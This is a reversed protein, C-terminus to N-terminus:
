VCHVILVYFNIGNSALLYFAFTDFPLQQVGRRRGASFMGSSVVQSSFHALFVQALDNRM